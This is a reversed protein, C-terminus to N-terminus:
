RDWKRKMGHMDGIKVKGKWRWPTEKMEIKKKKKGGGDNPPWNATVGTCVPPGFGGLYKELRKVKREGHEGERRERERDTNGPQKARPVTSSRKTRDASHMQVTNHALSPSRGSTRAPALAPALARMPTHKTLRRSFTIVRWNMFRFSVQRRRGLAAEWTKVWSIGSFVKVWYLIINTSRLLLDYLCYSYIQTLLLQNYIQLKYVKESKM